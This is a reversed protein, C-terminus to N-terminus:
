MGTHVFKVMIIFNRNHLKVVKSVISTYQNTYIVHYISIIRKKNKKLNGIVYIKIKIPKYLFQHYEQVPTELYISDTDWGIQCLVRLKKELWYFNRCYCWVVLVIWLTKQLRVPCCNFSLSINSCVVINQIVPILQIM